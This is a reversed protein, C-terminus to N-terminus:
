DGDVAHSELQADGCFLSGLMLCLRDFDHQANLTVWPGLLLGSGDHFQVHLRPSVERSRRRGFRDVGVDDRLDDRWPEVCKVAGLPFRHARWCYGYPRITLQAGDLEVSFGSLPRLWYALVAASALVGWLVAQAMAKGAERGIPKLYPALPLLLVVFLVATVVLFPLVRPGLVLRHTRWRKM